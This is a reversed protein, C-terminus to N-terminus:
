EWVLNRMDIKPAIKQTKAEAGRHSVKHGLSVFEKRNFQCKSKGLKLGIKRVAKLVAITRQKLEEKSSGWVIIDDQSNAAGQLGGIIESITAQCIESSSEEDLKVQLFAISADM